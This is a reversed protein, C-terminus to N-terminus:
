RRPAGAGVGTPAPQNGVRPTPNAARRAPKGPEGADRITEWPKGLPIGKFNEANIPVNMQVQYLTYDKKAKENPSILVIRTPLYTSKSLQLFAQKFSEKDIDWRPLIGIVFYEQGNKDKMERLMNMQYRAEAEAARMNFLFPLPGEEMARKKEQADLPFIFIQKTDSKYQWVEDGTCIIREHDVLVSKGQASTKVEKFDICGKNPSQLFAQGEYREEEEWAPDTDLRAIKLVLSTLRGSRREWEQLIAKMKPDNVRVPPQVAPAGAARTGAAQAPRNAPPVAAGKQIQAPRQTPGQALVGTNGAAVALALAV